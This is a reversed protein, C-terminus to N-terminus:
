YEKAFNLFSTNLIFKGIIFINWDQSELFFFFQCSQISSKTLYIINCDM